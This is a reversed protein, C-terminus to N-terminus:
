QIFINHSYSSCMNELSLNFCSNKTRGYASFSYHKAQPQLSAKNRRHTNLTARGLGERRKPFPSLCFSLSVSLLLWASREWEQQEAWHPSATISCVVSTNSRCVAQTLNELLSHFPAIVERQTKQTRETKEKHDQTKSLNLFQSLNKKNSIFAFSKWAM